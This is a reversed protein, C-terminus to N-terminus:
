GPGKRHHTRSLFLVIFPGQPDQYRHYVSVFRAQSYEKVPRPKGVANQETGVPSFIVDTAIGSNGCSITAMRMECDSYEPTEDGLGDLHRSILTSL